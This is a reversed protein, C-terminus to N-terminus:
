SVASHMQNERCLRVDSESLQFVLVPEATRSSIVRVSLYIQETEELMHDVLGLSVNRMMESNDGTKLNSTSPEIGLWVMM